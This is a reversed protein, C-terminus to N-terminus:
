PLLSQSISKRSSAMKKLLHLFSRAIQMTPDINATERFKAHLRMAVELDVGLRRQEEKIAESCLGCVWAGGFQEKVCGIYDVTCEEWIGCCECKAIKVIEHDYEM